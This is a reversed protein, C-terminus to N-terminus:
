AGEGKVLFILNIRSALNLWVLNLMKATRTEGLLM